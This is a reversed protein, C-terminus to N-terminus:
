TAAPDAPDATGMQVWVAGCALAEAVGAGFIVSDVVDAAPLVAIVVRAGRIADRPSPAVAVGADALAATTTESRDWVTTRVGKEALSRAMGLGMLGTGLVAVGCGSSTTHSMGKSGVSLSILASTRSPSGVDCPGPSEPRSASGHLAPGQSPKGDGARHRRRGGREHLCAAAQTLQYNDWEGGARGRADSRRHGCPPQRRSSGCCRGAPPLDGRTGRGEAGVWAKVAPLM